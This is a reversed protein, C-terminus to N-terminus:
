RIDGFGFERLYGNNRIRYQGSVGCSVKLVVRTQDPRTQADNQVGRSRRETTMGFPTRSM